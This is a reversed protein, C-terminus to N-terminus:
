LGRLFAVGTPTGVGTIDDYGPPTALTTEGPYDLTRLSWAFGGAADENNVSTPACSPRTAAVRGAFSSDFFPALADPVVGQQYAPEPVIRSTGGGAGGFFPPPDLSSTYAAQPTAFNAIPAPGTEWGTEFLHQGGSGIGLTTGGVATVWQSVAPWDPTRYGVDAVEDGNDGSSFYLGVGTLAAQVAISDVPIEFGQPLLETSWGYSNSVIQALHRDVVHNLAADLDQFNNPASVFVIKAGPATTHVAEVDLTEEGYWGSPDMVRNNPTRYSGPAVVQTFQGPKPAPLGHRRSYEALDAAITPSAFADIIAVTQGSGDHGGAIADTLGYASQIQAPEYSCVAVPLDHPRRLAAGHREARRLVRPVAPGSPFGDVPPADPDGPRGSSSAARSTDPHVLAASDDLDVVTAV